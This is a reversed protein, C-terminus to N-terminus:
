KIANGNNDFKTKMYNEPQLRSKGFFTVASSGDSCAEIHCHWNKRWIGHLLNGNRDSIEAANGTSGSLAIKKFM